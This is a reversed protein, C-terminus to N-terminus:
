KKPPLQANLMWTHGYPDTVYAFRAGWFADEPEQGKKAGAAVAQRYVRDVEAPAKLQIVLGVPSPKGPQPGVSGHEPFEDMVFVTGGYINIDSHMLKGEPTPGRSIEKAEFAKKYWDIAAAANSVTLYPVVIQM